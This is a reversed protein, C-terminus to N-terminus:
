EPLKAIGPDHNRIGASKPGGMMRGSLVRHFFHVEFGHGANNQSHVAGNLFESSFFLLHGILKGAAYKWATPATPDKMSTVIM